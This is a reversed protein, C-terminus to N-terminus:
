LIGRSLEGGTTFLLFDARVHTKDVFLEKLAAFLKINITFHGDAHANKGRRYGSMKEFRSADLASLELFCSSSINSFILCFIEVISSFSKFSSWVGSWVNSSSMAVPWSELSTRWTCDLKYPEVGAHCRLWEVMKQKSYSCRSRNLLVQRQLFALFSTWYQKRRQLCHTKLKIASRHIGWMNVTHATIRTLMPM